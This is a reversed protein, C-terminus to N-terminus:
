QKEPAAEEGFSHRAHLRDKDSEHLSPIRQSSCLTLQLIIHKGHMTMYRYLDEKSRFRALLEEPKTAKKEIAAPQMLPRNSIFIEILFRFGSSVSIWRGLQM